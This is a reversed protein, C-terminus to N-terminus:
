YLWICFVCLLYIFLFVTRHLSIIIYKRMLMNLLYLCPFFLIIYFASLLLRDLFGKPNFITLISLIIALLLIVLIAGIVIYKIEWFFNETIKKM